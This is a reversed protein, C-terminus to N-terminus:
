FSWTLQIVSLEDIRDANRAAVMDYIKGGSRFQDENTVPLTSEMFLDYSIETLRKGFKDVVQRGTEQFRCPLQERYLFFLPERGGSESQWQHKAPRYIDVRDCLNHEIALARSVCKYDANLCVLPSELVTFEVGDADTIKDGPKVAGRKVFVEPLWWTTDRSTYRGGSAAQERFSTPRRKANTVTEQKNATDARVHTLTVTERNVRVKYNIATNLALAM